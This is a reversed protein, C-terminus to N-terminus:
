GLTAYIPLEIKIPVYDDNCRAPQWNTSKFLNYLKDYVEKDLKGRELRISIVEGDESIIFSFVYKIHGTSTRKDIERVRLNKGILKLLNGMGDELIPERDVKLYCDMGHLSDYKIKCTLDQM